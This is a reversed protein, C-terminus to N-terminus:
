QLQKFIKKAEKQLTDKSGNNQIIFDAMEIKDKEPWQL